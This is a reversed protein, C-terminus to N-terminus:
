AFDEPTPPSIGSGAAIARQAMAVAAPSHYQGRKHRALLEHAWHRDRPAARLSARLAELEAPTPGRVAAANPLATASPAANCLKRFEIVTPPKEPLFDLAYRLAGLNSRFCALERAWDGKVVALDLDRWRELFPAGYRVTLATFLRDVVDDPLPTPSRFSM